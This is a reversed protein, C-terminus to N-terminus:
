KRSIKLLNAVYNNLKQLIVIYIDKFQL